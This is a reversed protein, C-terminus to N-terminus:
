QTGMGPIMPSGEWSQPTNWPISSENDTTACGACFSLAVAAIALASTIRLIGRM